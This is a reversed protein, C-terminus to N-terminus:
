RAYNFFEMHHYKKIIRLADARRPVSFFYAGNYTIEYRVLYPIHNLVKVTKWITGNKTYYPRQITRYGLTDYGGSVIRRVAWGPYRKYLTPYWETKM